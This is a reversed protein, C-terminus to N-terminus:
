RTGKRPGKRATMRERVNRHVTYRRGITMSGDATLPITYNTLSASTGWVGSNVAVVDYPELHPVVLGTYDLQLGTNLRDALTTEALAKAAAETTVTTDSVDERLYRRTGNRGLSTSSLPHAAPAHALGVVPKGGKSPAAGTVVVLNRVNKMDYRVKPRSLLSGDVGPKYTWVPATNPGIFRAYGAGDYMIRGSGWSRAVSQIYDWPITSPAISLPKTTKTPQHPIETFAEGFMALLERLVTTKYSGARWTRHTSAPGLLLSEKGIASLTVIDGNRSVDDIPGTFIPVDVWRPLEASKVGYTIRVMRDLFLSGGFTASADLNLMHDSDLVTLAASRTINSGTDVDVQGSLVRGTTTGMVNHDMDLIQVRVRMEHARVLGLHFAARDADNLGLPYM